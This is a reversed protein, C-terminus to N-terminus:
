EAEPTDYGSLYETFTNIQTIIADRDSLLATQADTDTETDLRRYIDSLRFYLNGLEECDDSRSVTQALTAVRKSNKYEVSIVQTNTNM